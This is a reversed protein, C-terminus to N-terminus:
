SLEWNSVYRKWMNMFNRKRSKLSSKTHLASFVLAGCVPKLNWCLNWLNWCLNWWCGCVEDQCLHWQAQQSSAADRICSADRLLLLHTTKTAFLLHRKLITMMQTADPPSNLKGSYIMPIMIFTTALCTIHPTLSHLFSDILSNWSNRLSFILSIQMIKM